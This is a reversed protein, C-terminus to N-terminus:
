HESQKLNKYRRAPRVYGIGKKLHFRTPIQKYGAKDHVVVEIHLHPFASFGSNGSRGIVQGTKVSDGPNVLVGNKMLHVYWGFSNDPHRILIYNADHFYKYKLGRKDSDEKMEHVIGDRMACVKTGRKMKFDLAFEGKHSMTSQYGQVVFFSKGEEYPLTYVFSTDKPAEGKKLEAVHSDGSQAIVSFSLLVLFVTKM